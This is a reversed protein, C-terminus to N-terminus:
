FTVDTRGAAALLSHRIPKPIASPSRAPSRAPSEVTNSPPAGEQEREKHKHRRKVTDSETLNFHPVEQDQPNLEPNQPTPELPNQDRHSELMEQNPHPPELVAQARPPAPAKPRQKITLNGEEAFPISESSGGVEQEEKRVEAAALTGGQTGGAPPSAATTSDVSSVSSLRKPPPPPPGKKRARVAFSQSRGLNQENRVQNQDPRVLQSRGPKRTLTAYSSLHGTSCLCLLDLAFRENPLM